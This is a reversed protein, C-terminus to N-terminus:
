EPGFPYSKIDKEVAKLLRTIERKDDDNLTQAGSPAREVLSTFVGRRKLVYRMFPHTELIILPLLRRHEHRDPCCCANCELRDSYCEKQHPANVQTLGHALASGLM